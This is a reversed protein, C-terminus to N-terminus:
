FIYPYPSGVQPDEKKKHENQFRQDYEMTYTTPGDEFLEVMLNFLEKFGFSETEPECSRM